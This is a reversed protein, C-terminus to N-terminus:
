RHTTASFTMPTDDDIYRCGFKYDDAAADVTYGDSLEAYVDNSNIGTRQVRRRIGKRYPRM